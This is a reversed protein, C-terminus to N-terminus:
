ETVLDGLTLQFIRCIDTLTEMTLEHTDSLWARVAHIESRMRSGFQQQSWGTQHLLRDVRAILLQRNERSTLDSPKLKTLLVDLFSNSNEKKM